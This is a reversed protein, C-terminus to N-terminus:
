VRGTLKDAIWESLLEHLEDKCQRLGHGVGPYIVLEKPELAWEYIMESCKPALRTDDAGHVLLLPRPSVESANTAGLTQSSLAVVANVLPGFPAASIVVAGGFSHGVLVMDTHGIGKLFSVGVLTDLVSEHLVGPHRYNVRLSTISQSKLEEALVRYIGDAPGDFGGHAGCVWIIAKPTDSEHHLIAEVDGRTTRLLMGRGTQGQPPEWADVREIQITLDTDSTSMASQRM